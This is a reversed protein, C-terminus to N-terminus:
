PQVHLVFCPPLHECHVDVMHIDPKFQCAHILSQDQEALLKTRVTRTCRFGVSVMRDARHLHIVHYLLLRYLRKIHAKFIPTLAWHYGVRLHHCRQLLSNSNDIRSDSACRFSLRDGLLMFSASVMSVHKRVAESQENEDMCPLTQKSRYGICSAAPLSNRLLTTHPAVCPAFRGHMYMSRFHTSWVRGTTYWFSVVYLNCYKALWETNHSSHPEQDGANHM